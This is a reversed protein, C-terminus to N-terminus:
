QFYRQISHKMRKFIGAENVTQLALLPVENIVQDELVLLSKGLERGVSMPARIYPNLEIKSELVDFADRPLTLFLDEAVGVGISDDEGMWIRAHSIPDGASYVKKTRFFRFGYNLLKQSEAIRIKESDTGLIISVLRMDNRTASAVLCYGAEQTHGTKMGDVSADRWLLTNRNEQTINNFTFERESYLKYTDPHERIIASAIRALDNATTYHNEDPLGSANVFNTSNMGLSQAMRNMMDVFVPETAAVHEALAVSADNGSQIILGRLLDSLPVVSGAEVFMRSGPQSQAAESIIVPEDLSISGRKLESAVIYATMMKTLSAPAIRKDPDKSALVVGSANDYLLFSNASLQPPAPVPAAWSAASLLLACLM